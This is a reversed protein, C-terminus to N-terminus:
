QKAIIQPTLTILKSDLLLGLVPAVIDQDKRQEMVYELFGDVFKEICAPTVFKAKLTLEM